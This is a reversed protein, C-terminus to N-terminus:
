AKYKDKNLCGLHKISEHKKIITDLQKEYDNKPFVNYSCIFLEADPLFEIIQSWLELLRDLGREACSTYIFRNTFKIPKYIFKDPNFFLLM